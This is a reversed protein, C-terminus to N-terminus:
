DNSEEGGALLEYDAGEPAPLMPQATAKIRKREAIAALHRDAANVVTNNIQVQAEGGYTGRNWKSALWQRVSAREKAFAVEERTVETGALEDIVTLSAEAHVHAALARAAAVKAKNESTSNLWSSMIGTSITQGTKETLIRGLEALTHPTGDEDAGAAIYECVVDVATPMVGDEGPGMEAAQRELEAIM